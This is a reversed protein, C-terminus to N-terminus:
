VGKFHLCEETTYFVNHLFFKKEQKKFDKCDDIQKLQKPLGNYLKIDTNTVSKQYLVTSCHRTHLDYKKRINHGHIESNQKVNGQHKKLFCLIEFIYLSSLTLIQFRRFIPRCSEGKHTGTILRIVKKQLRFIKTYKKDGGWFIIGYRLRSQFNAFYTRWIMQTSTVNKLSKIM